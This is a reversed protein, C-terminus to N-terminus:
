ATLHAALRIALAATTLSPNAAPSAPFVSNDCAYLNDYALFKLDADVVGTGGDAMRLTGVEHAVGGLGAWQLDLGAEDLVPQAGIAAFLGAALADTEALAAPPPPTPNMTVVLPQAPDPPGVVGNAENLAAYHMFVLECLMWGARAQKELALSHPDVYRGQNLDAGLEVVVDFGHDTTTAAPHHLLVKATDTASSQPSGPPLVFHRYRITHDTLGRGIKANPDVLGSRLAIKASELTGASLVVTKARFERPRGALLDWGRVGIVRAPDNPDGITEWVAFNLNIPLRAPTDDELLRDEMLLDATSFLGAPISWRSAGSYQVAVSADQASYGPLAGGLFAVSQQQFASTSPPVRNLAGEAADYGGGLLDARVAAPWSALEWPNQRPILGGWFLSRGGLNFAQAGAYQSGPPQVYNVVKFDEWLSWVHKDFKGIKLRRPLNAVHTPFLYSGAELIMVDAGAAALRSALVGGGMGSGVVLVDYEHDPSLNRQFLRQPVVGRETVLAALDPFEVGGAVGDDAFWDHPPGVLDGPGLFLDPGAAWRGPTLVFKFTIGGPFAGEDLDFTWAGDRYVGGRDLDWNPGWRLVVTRSPAYKETLLRVTFM